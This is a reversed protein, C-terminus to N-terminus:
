SQWLSVARFVCLPTFADRARPANSGRARHRRAFLQSRRRNRMVVFNAARQIAATALPSKRCRMVRCLPTLETAASDGWRINADTTKTPRSAPQPPPSPFSDHSPMTSGMRTNVGVGALRVSSIPTWPCTVALTDLRQELSLGLTRHVDLSEATADTSAAPRTTATLTPAAVSTAVAKPSCARVLTGTM